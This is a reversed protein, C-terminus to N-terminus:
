IGDLSDIVEMTVELDDLDEAIAAAPMLSFGALALTALFVNLQKM